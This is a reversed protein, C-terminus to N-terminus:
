IAGPGRETKPIYSYRIRGRDAPKASLIGAGVLITMATAITCHAHQLGTAVERTLSDPHARLYGAIRKALPHSKPMQHAAVLGLFREEDVLYYDRITDVRGDLFEVRVGGSFIKVVTGTNRPTINEM